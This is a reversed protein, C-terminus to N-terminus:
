FGPKVTKAKKRAELKELEEASLDNLQYTICRSTKTIKRAPVTQPIGSSLGSTDKNNNDEPNSNDSASVVSSHGPPAFYNVNEADLKQEPRSSKRSRATTKGGNTNRTRKANKAIALARQECNRNSCKGDIILSGCSCFNAM